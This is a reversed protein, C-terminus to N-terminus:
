PHGCRHVIRRALVESQRRNARLVRRAKEVFHRDRIGALNDKLLWQASEGSGWLLEMAVGVDSLLSRNAGCTLLRDAARLGQYAYELVAMPISCGAVLAAQLRKRRAQQQEPTAKPLRLARAIRQYAAVDQRVSRLFQQAIRDSLAVIRKLEALAKATKTQKALTYRAVKGILATGLAGAYAAAAGGGPTPAQAALRKTFEKLTM